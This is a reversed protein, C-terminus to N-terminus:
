REWKDSFKRKVEEYDLVKGEDSERIGKEIKEILLLREILKETEFEEEFADLAEIVTTKKM